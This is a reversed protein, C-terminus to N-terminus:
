NFDRKEKINNKILEGLFKRHESPNILIKKNDETYLMISDQTNNIYCRFRGGFDKNYFIGSFSFLGGNGWLRISRGLQPIVKYYKINDFKVKRFKSKVIVEKKNYIYLRPKLFWALGIFLLAFQSIILANKISVGRFANFISVGTLLLITIGSISIVDNSYQKPKFDM